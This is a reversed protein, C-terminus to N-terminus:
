FTGTAILNLEAKYLGAATTNSVRAGFTLPVNMNMIPADDTDFIPDGYTSGVGTANGSVWNIGYNSATAYPANATVTGSGEGASAETEDGVNLGFLSSGAPFNTATTAPAIRCTTDPDGARVLGGCQNNIKMNVVAGSSANTSIQAYSGATDPQSADLAKPTGHGLELSPTDTGACAVGPASKSVCFTMTERVAASVQIPNTIAMAIGGGDIYAGPATASVHETTATAADTYTQIRAFFGNTTADTVYNPNTIGSFTITIPVGSDLETELLLSTASPTTVGTQPASTAGTTVLGGPDTCTQGIIPSAKCFDIWVAGASQEPTFTLEYSVDTASVASSSLKMARDTVLGAAEAGVPVMAPAAIGLLTVISAFLYGVRSDLFRRSKM